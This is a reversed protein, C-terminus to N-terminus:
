LRDQAFKGLHDIHVVHFDLPDPVLDVHRTVTRHGVPQQKRPDVVERGGKFDAELLGGGIQEPHEDMGFRLGVVSSLSFSPHGMRRTKQSPPVGAALLSSCAITSALNCHVSPSLNMTAALLPCAITTSASRCRLVAGPGMSSTSIPSHEQVAVSTTVMRRLFRSGIVPSSTRASASRAVSGGVTYVLM